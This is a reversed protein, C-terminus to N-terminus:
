DKPPPGDFDPGRGPGPPRQGGPPGWPFGRGRDGPSRRQSYLFRLERYMQDAPLSELRLRESDSLSEHAFQHLEELSPPSTRLRSLVAAGIWWRMIRSREHPEAKELVARAEQSVKAQLADEEEPSPRPLDPSMSQVYLRGLFVRDRDAVYNKKLETFPGDPLTALIDQAHQDLFQDFWDHIVALDSPDMQFGGAMRRARKLDQARVLEKIKEIRKDPPLSEVEARETVNLTNLWNSYCALVRRFETAQPDQTLQRHIDRLRQQEAADLNSFRRKKQLLTKRQDDTMAKIREVREDWTENELPGRPEDARLWQPCPWAIGAAVLLWGALPLWGCRTWRSARRAALSPRTAPCRHRSNERHM